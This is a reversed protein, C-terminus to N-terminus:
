FMLFHESVKGNTISKDKGFSNGIEEKTQPDFDGGEYKHGDGNRTPFIGMQFLLAGLYVYKKTFSERTNTVEVM